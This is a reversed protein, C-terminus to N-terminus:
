DDKARGRPATASRKGEPTPLLALAEDLTVRGIETPDVNGTLKRV